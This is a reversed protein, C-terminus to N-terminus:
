VKHGKPLSPSSRSWCAQSSSQGPGLTSLGLSDCQVHSHSSTWSSGWVPEKELSLMHGLFGCCLLQASHESSSQAGPNRSFKPFFPPLELPVSPKGWETSALRGGEGLKLSRM